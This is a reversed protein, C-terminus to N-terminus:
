QALRHEVIEPNALLQKRADRYPQLYTVLAEFLATKAHGYGFGINEAAYKHRLQEIDAKSAIIEYLKFIVCDDPNKKKEDISESGSVISMVRKKIVKEDDFIGIFNNYSKSM